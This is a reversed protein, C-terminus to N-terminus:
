GIGHLGHFKDQAFDFPGHIFRKAAQQGKTLFNLEIKLFKAKNKEGGLYPTNGPKGM